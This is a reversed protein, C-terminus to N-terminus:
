CNFNHVCFLYRITDHRETPIFFLALFVPLEALDIERLRDANEIIRFDDFRDVVARGVALFTNLRQSLGAANKIEDDVCPASLGAVDDRRPLYPFM